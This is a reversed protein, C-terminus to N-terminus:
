VHKKITGRGEIFYVPTHPFGNFRNMFVTNYAGVDHFVIKDGVEMDRPLLAERTIIDWSDGTPGALAFLAEGQDHLPRMSTMKYRISGQYSLSEFLGNYVGADLFLWTHEDREVKAIVSAVLMGAEAVIARGPELVIHPKYPLKKFTQLAYTSIDKLTFEYESSAYTHCPFGGGINIMEITIGAKQLHEMPEVLNELAYTWAKENGAQSGVHFSIGYPHLGLDRARELLPAINNKSTGFKESFRYISGSDNVNMRCYVRAKPAVQAIKELESLSDFAFRDIGYHYFEKIHSAPKVSTGYMIREPPIKLSKLYDLEYKSAVEFSSGAEFLLRLLEPEANAKIAYHITAGKFDKKFEHYKQLVKEKSFIFFPTEHPFNELFDLQHKSQLAM